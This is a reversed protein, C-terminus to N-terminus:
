AGNCKSDRARATANMVRVWGNTGGDGGDNVRDGVVTVWGGMMAMVSVADCRVLCWWWWWWAVWWRGGGMAGDGGMGGCKADQGGM